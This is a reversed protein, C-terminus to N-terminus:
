GSFRRCFKSFSYMDQVVVTGGEESGGAAESGEESGGAAESVVVSSVQSASTASKRRACPSAFLRRASSTAVLPRQELPLRCRNRLASPPNSSWSLSFAKAQLSSAM